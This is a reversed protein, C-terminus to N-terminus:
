IRQIRLPEFEVENCFIYAFGGKYEEFEPTEKMEIADQADEISAYCKNACTNYSVIAKRKISFGIDFTHKVTGYRELYEVTIADLMEIDLESYYEYISEERVETNYGDIFSEVDLFTFNGIQPEEYMTFRRM